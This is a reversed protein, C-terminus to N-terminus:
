QHWFTEYTQFVSVKSTKIIHEIFNQLFHEGINYAQLFSCSVFHIEQEDWIGLWSLILSRGTYIFLMFISM